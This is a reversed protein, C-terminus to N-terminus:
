WVEKIKMQCEYANHAVQTVKLSDQDLVCIAFDGPNNSANNPQFIFRQGNGIKNLVISEFSPDSNMNYKFDSDDPSAKQVQVWDILCQTDIARNKDDDNDTWGYIGFTLRRGSWRNFEQEGNFESAVNDSNATEDFSFTAEFVQYSTTLPVQLIQNYGAGAQLLFSDQWNTSAKARFRIRYAQRWRRDLEDVNADRKYIKLNDITFDGVEGFGIRKIRVSHGSTGSDNGIAINLQTSTTTFEVSYTGDSNTANVYDVSGGGSNGILIRVDGDVFAESTAFHNVELRYKKGSSVTVAARMTGKATATNTIELGTSADATTMLSTVQSNTFASNAVVDYSSGANTFAVSEMEFDFRHQANAFINGYGASSSTNSFIGNMDEVSGWKRKLVLNAQDALFTFENVEGVVTPLTGSGNGELCFEGANVSDVYYQIKYEQNMELWNDITIYANNNGMWKFNCANGGQTGTVITANYVRDFASLDTFHNVFVEDPYDGIQFVNDQTMLWNYSTSRISSSSNSYNTTSDLNDLAYWDADSRSYILAEGGANGTDADADIFTRGNVDHTSGDQLTKLGGSYETGWGQGATVNGLHTDAAVDTAMDPNKLYNVGFNYTDIYKTTDLGAAGYNPELYTGAMPNSAFMDTGAIYSFKLNWNRRGLRKTMPLYEITGGSTGWNLEDWKYASFPDVRRGEHDYWWPSGSYRQRTLTSGGLTTISDYGDFETEMTLKLDPSHPMDYYLGASIAGVRHGVTNNRVSTSNHCAWGVYSWEPVRNTMKQTFITSGNNWVRRNGDANLVIRYDEAWHQSNLDEDNGILGGDSYNLFNNYLGLPASAVGNFEIQSEDWLNHNLYATYWGINDVDPPLTDMGTPLHIGMWATQTSGENRQFFEQNVPDLTFADPHLFPTYSYGTTSIGDEGSGGWNPDANWDHDHGIGYFRQFYERTDIGTSKLYIYQDIYFRPTGVSKHAM